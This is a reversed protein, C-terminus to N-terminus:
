SKSLSRKMRSEWKILINECLVNNGGETIHCTEGM